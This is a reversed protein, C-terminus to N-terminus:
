QHRYNKYKENFKDIQTTRVIVKQKSSDYDLEEDSVAGFYSIYSKDFCDTGTCPFMSIINCTGPAVLVNLFDMKEGNTTGINTYKFVYRELIGCCYVRKGNKINKTVLDYLKDININESFISHINKECIGHCHTKIHDIADDKSYSILQKISYKEQYYFDFDMGLKTYSIIRMQDFIEQVEGCCHLKEFKKILNLADSYRKLDFVIYIISLLIKKQPNIEYLSEYIFLADELNGKRYLIEAYYSQIGFDDPHYKMYELIWREAKKFECNFIMQQIGNFNAKKKSIHKRYNYM